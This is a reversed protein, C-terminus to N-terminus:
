KTKEGEVKKEGLKAKLKRAVSQSINRDELIDGESFDSDEEGELEVIVEDKGGDVLTNEKNEDESANTQVKWKEVM